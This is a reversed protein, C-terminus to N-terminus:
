AVYFIVCNENADNFYGAFEKYWYNYFDANANYHSTTKSEPCAVGCADRDFIGCILGSLVVEQGNGGAGDDVVIHIDSTNAFKYDKGSGQWYTVTEASPLKVYENHFTDSQLYVDAKKAFESLMLIKQRDKPTFRERGGGNYLVSYDGMYDSTLSIETAAYKLFDLNSLCNAQTLAVYGTDNAHNLNYEYLLNRCRVGTRGSFSTGDSVESIATLGFLNNITRKILNDKDLTLRNYIKTEIMSFFANLQQASSFSEKVQKETISMEVTFTTRKNWFKAKVGKPSKFVDQKYETGDELQWDNTVTAEPLESDIKELISGYEWGDMLISPARSTYPRNVFVVKGIHNILRKVYNDFADSSATFSSIIEKGIDVVNTLDEAVIDSKGLTESVMTNLVSYVQEVKM